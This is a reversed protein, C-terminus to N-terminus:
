RKTNNQADVILRMMNEAQKMGDFVIGASNLLDFYEQMKVVSMSMDHIEYLLNEVEDPIIIFESLHSKLTILQPTAM